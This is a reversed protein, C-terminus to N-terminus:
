PRRGTRSDNDESALRSVICRGRVDDNLGFRADHAVDVLVVGDRAPADLPDAPPEVLLAHGRPLGPGAPPGRRHPLHQAVRGIAARGAEALRPYDPSHGALLAYRPRQPHAAGNRTAVTRGAFPRALLPDLDRYRRDDVLRGERPRLLQQVLVLHVGAAARDLRAQHLSQHTAALAAVRERADRRPRGRAPNLVIAADPGVPPPVQRTRPAIRTRDPLIQQVLHYPGFHEPQELLRGQDLLFQIAPQGGGLSGVGLPSPRLGHLPVKCADALGDLPQEGGVLLVQHREVM